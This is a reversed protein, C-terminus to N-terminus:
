MGDDDLLELQTNEALKAKEKFKEDLQIIDKIREINESNNDKEIPITKLIGSKSHKIELKRTNDATKYITMTIKPINTKNYNAKILSSENSNIGKIHTLTFQYLLEENFQSAIETKLKAITKITSGTALIYLYCKSFYLFGTNTNKIENLKSNLINLENQILIGNEAIFCIESDQVATINANIQDPINNLSSFHGTPSSLLVQEQEAYLSLTKSPSCTNMRNLTRVTDGTLYVTTPFDILAEPCDYVLVDDGNIVRVTQQEANIYIGKFNKYKNKIHIIEHCHRPQIEFSQKQSLQRYYEIHPQHAEFSQCYRGQDGHVLETAALIPYKNVNDYDFLLTIMDLARAKKAFQKFFEAKISCEGDKLVGLKETIAIHIINLSNSSGGIISLRKNENSIVFTVYPAPDILNIKQVFADLLDIGDSINQKM